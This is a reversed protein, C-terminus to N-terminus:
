NFESDDHIYVYLSLYISLYISLYTTLSISHALSLDPVPLIPSFLGLEKRACIEM